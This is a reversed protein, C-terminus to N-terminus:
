VVFSFFGGVSTAPQWFLFVVIMAPAAGLHGVPDVMLAVAHFVFPLTAAAITDVPSLRSRQLRIPMVNM